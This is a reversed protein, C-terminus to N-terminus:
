RDCFLESSPLKRLGLADIDGDVLDRVDNPNAASELQNDLWEAIQQRSYRDGFKEQLSTAAEVATTKAESANGCWAHLRVKDGFLLHPSVTNYWFKRTMFDRYAALVQSKSLPGELPLLAQEKIRVAAVDVKSENHFLMRIDDSVGHRNLSLPTDLTLSLNDSGTGLMTVHWIPQYATNGTKRDLLIGNVLPGCRRLMWMSEYIGLGPFKKHWDATVQARVPSTLKLEQHKM